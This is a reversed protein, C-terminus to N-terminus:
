KPTTTLYLKKAKEIFTAAIKNTANYHLNFKRSLLVLNLPYKKESLEAFKLAQTINITHLLQVPTIEQWVPNGEFTIFSMYFVNQHWALAQRYFWQLFLPVSVVFTPQMCVHPLVNVFFNQFRLIERTGTILINRITHHNRLARQLTKLHHMYNKYMTGPPTFAGANLHDEADKWNHFLSPAFQILEKHSWGQWLAFKWAIEANHVWSKSM